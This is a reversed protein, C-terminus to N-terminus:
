AAPSIEQWVQWQSWLDDSIGSEDMLQRARRSLSARNVQRKIAQYAERFTPDRRVDNKNRYRDPNARFVQDVMKSYLGMPSPRGSARARRAHAENTIVGQRTGRGRLESERLNALEPNRRVKDYQRKTVIEGHPNVYYRGPGALAYWGPVPTPRLGSPIAMARVTHYVAFLRGSRGM